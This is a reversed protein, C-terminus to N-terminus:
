LKRAKVILIEGSLLDDILKDSTLTSNKFQGFYRKMRRKIFSHLFCSILYRRSRYSLVGHYSTLHMPFRRSIAVAELKMSNKRLMYMLQPFSIPTIHVDLKDYLNKPEKWIQEGYEFLLHEGFILFHLRSQLSLVNPTTVILKGNRKLIRGLESVIHEPDYLHEIVEVLLVIDFCENDYPLKKSLDVKRCVINKLVFREPNLDCAEVEFGMEILKQTLPGEGAGADLVKRGNEAKLMELVREHVGPYTDPKPTSFAM